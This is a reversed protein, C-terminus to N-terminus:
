KGSSPLLGELLVAFAEGLQALLGCSEEGCDGADELLL